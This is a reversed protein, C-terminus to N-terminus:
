VFSKGSSLKAYVETPDLAAPRDAIARTAEAPDLIQRPDAYLSPSDLTTALLM